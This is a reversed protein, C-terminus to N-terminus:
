LIFNPLKGEFLLTLAESASVHHKRCTSLYSRVRCFIDAGEKSRFCGSIKQHLKTMRIDNEGQNNTFPVEADTMFRLTEQEFNRLRELLNRSKSRKVRGRKKKETGEPEPPPPCEIEAQTLITQYQERYAAAQDESLTGGRADVDDLISKLLDIMRKAWAQGEEEHAFTLERLHHANCLAHQCLLKFYPKWHDHVLIGSFLTLLPLSEMAELGRKDHAYYLTWLPNSVCHLWRNKGNINIGTEDAHIVRTNLLQAIVKQEFQELLEYAQRNYTFISGESIPLGLQEQFHEQVRNYPILQYQSLYVTQAKVGNGYQVAKTVGKPFSATFRQGQANELIEARYEIVVRQIDIDFVQRSDFGVVNYDGPPLLSRDVSLPKIVDPDDVKELTTGVRGPQGGSHKGSGGRNNKGGKGFRNSSPPQSSNRSNLSLRGAMIQVLMILVALISRLTPSLNAEEALLQQASKLTAEVDIDNITLVFYRLGNPIGSNYPRNLFGIKVETFARSM